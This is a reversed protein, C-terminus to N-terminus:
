QLGELRPLMQLHVTEAGEWAVRARRWKGDVKAMVESGMRLDGDLLITKQHILLGDAWAVERSPYVVSDMNPERYWKGKLVKGSEAYEIEGDPGRKSMNSEHVAALAADLDIGFSVATGYVVYLVDCLEKAVHGLNLEPESLAELAEDTEDRILKRRLDVLKRPVNDWRPRTQVPEGPERFADHFETLMQMPTM